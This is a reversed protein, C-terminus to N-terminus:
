KLSYLVWRELADGNLVFLVEAYRMIQGTPTYIVQMPQGYKEIIMQQSAGVKIGRATEGKYIPSTAQFLASTKRNKKSVFLKYQTSKETNQEFSLIDDITRSKNVEPFLIQFPNEGDIAEDDFFDNSGSEVQAPLPQKMLIALNHAAIGTKDTKMALEFKAKAAQDGAVTKSQASIIGLLVEIYPINTAYKGIATRRAEVDAYYMARASENLLALACAKNLYAPAYEGDMSIAADFHLIAQRLLRNRQTIEDEGRSNAMELDLQVPYRFRLEDASFLKMAQLMATAGVNNYIERSQYESLILRYYRYAEEYLGTVTLWNAMEFVEIFEQLKQASQRSMDERESRTVYGESEDSISFVKYLRRILEDSQTFRGYGASYALFGGLYDSQAEMALDQFQDSLTKYKKLNDRLKTNGSSSKLMDQFLEDLQKSLHITDNDEAFDSRWAHKEYYHTLEHGLLFAIAAESQEGFTECVAFATDSLYITPYTGYDIKAITRERTMYFEPVPYRFDGRAQCLKEYVKLAKAYEPTGTIRNMTAAKAGFSKTPVMPFEGWSRQQALLSSCLISGILATLIVKMM